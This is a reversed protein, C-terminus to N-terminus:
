RQGFSDRNYIVSTLRNIANTLERQTEVIKFTNEEINKLQDLAAWEARRDELLFNKDERGRLGRVVAWIGLGLIAVGFLFQLVPFPGLTKAIVEEM